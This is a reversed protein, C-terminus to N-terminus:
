CNGGKHVTFGPRTLREPKGQEKLSAMLKAAEEPTLEEANALMLLELGAPIGSAMLEAGELAKTTDGEKLLRTIIEGTEAAMQVMEVLKNIVQGAQQPNRIAFSRVKM